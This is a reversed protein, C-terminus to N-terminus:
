LVAIQQARRTAAVAKEDQSHPTVSQSWTLLVNHDCDPVGWLWSSNRKRHVPRDGCDPSNYGGAGAIVRFIGRALLQKSVRPACWCTAFSAGFRHTMKRFVV